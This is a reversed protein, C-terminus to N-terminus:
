YATGGAAIYREYSRLCETSNWVKSDEETTYGLVSGTADTWVSVEDTVPTFEDLPGIVVEVCATSPLAETPVSTSDTSLTSTIVWTLLATAAVV